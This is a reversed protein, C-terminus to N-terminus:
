KDFSGLLIWKLKSVLGNKDFSDGIIWVLKSLVEWIGCGGGIVGM